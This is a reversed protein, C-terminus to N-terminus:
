DREAACSTAHLSLLQVAVETLAPFYRSLVNVWLARRSEVSAAKTVEKGRIVEVVLAASFNVASQVRSEVPLGQVHLSV